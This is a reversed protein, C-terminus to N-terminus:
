KLQLLNNELVKLLQSNFWCKEGIRWWVAGRCGCPVDTDCVFFEGMIATVLLFRLEHRCKYHNTTTTAPQLKATQKQSSKQKTPHNKTM